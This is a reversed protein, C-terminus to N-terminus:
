AVSAVGRYQPALYRPTGAMDFRDLKEVNFGGGTILEDIPRNVHCGGAILGHWWDLRDQRRAIRPDASRGHEIFLYRGGPRLVRRIEGLAAQADPISCLTWTTVVCDFRGADFSLKEARCREVHVPVPAAAIRRNVRSTLMEAPDLVTLREVTTPYFELNLGTGFGIELVEGRADALTPRRERMVAKHSMALELVRPLIWRSYIGM